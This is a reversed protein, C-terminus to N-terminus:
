KENNKERKKYPKCPHGFCIMGSPMSKTVVSRAGIVAMQGITVGPAIYSETGVFAGSEITVPKTILAFYPDSHDHSGTNINVKYSISVFDGITVRDLSYILADFDIASREGMTLNWPMYITAKSHIFCTSKIDAGFVNLLWLRFTNLKHPSWRFLTNQILMWVALKIKTKKTFTSKSPKLWIDNSEISM